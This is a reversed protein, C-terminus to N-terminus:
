AERPLRRRRLFEVSDLDAQIGPVEQGASEVLREITTILSDLRGTSDKELANLSGNVIGEWQSALRSLNMEVVDTVKSEFHKKVAGKFLAMPVVWSLLEWNHDFIRGVRVDPSRPDEVRLDTQTTRLPVGLAKLTRESLRNRFDQLSQSLQRSVRRVPDVFDERHQKSLERIEAAIRTGMWEEFRELATSLSRTWAPFQRDFETLLRERVPREQERLLEEFTTRTTGIAHRVILRLALRTDDLAEEQGLITRRLQERESEASQAAQLAVNLYDGCEGLLSDVKHLLIVARQEEIEAQVRSLFADHLQARLHEYGPRISYPFVPVTGKGFRALQQHVFTVVQALEHEEVVDAKTLLLSINPTYRNLERILEIDHQSLPPDVSVAILAMGVNPLWAM